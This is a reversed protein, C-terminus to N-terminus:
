KAPTSYSSCAHTHMKTQIYIYIYTYIYTYASDVGTTQARNSHENRSLQDVTVHIHICIHM